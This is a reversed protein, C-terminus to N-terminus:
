IWTEHLSIFRIYISSSISNNFYWSRISKIQKKQLLVQTSVNMYIQLCFISTHYNTLTIATIIFNIIILFLLFILIIIIYRKHYSLREALWGSLWIITQDRGSLCYSSTVIIIIIARLTTDLLICKYVKM